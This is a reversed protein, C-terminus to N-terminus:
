KVFNKYVCIESGKLNKDILPNFHKDNVAPNKMEPKVGGNKLYKKELRVQNLAPLGFGLYASEMVLAGTRLAANMKKADNVLNNNPNKFYDVLKAEVNEGLNQISTESLASYGTKQVQKLQELAGSAKTYAEDLGSGKLQTVFAEQKEVIEGMVKSFIKEPNGRKDGIEKFLKQIDTIDTINSYRSVFEDNTLARVGDTPHITDLINKGIKKLKDKPNAMFEKVKEPISALGKTQTDFIQQYPKNTMPLGTFKTVKGAIMSNLMKLLFLIIAVTQVDRFLIEKIEDQTAEKNDPNRKAATMVRPVIVMGIMLTTMTIFPNNAGTPEIAKIFSDLKPHKELAPTIKKGISSCATDVKSAINQFAKSSAINSGIKPLAM